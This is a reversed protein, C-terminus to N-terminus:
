EKSTFMNIITNKDLMSPSLDVYNSDPVQRVVRAGAMNLVTELDIANLCSRVYFDMTQTMLTGVGATISNGISTNSFYVRNEGDVSTILGFVNQRKSINMNASAVINSVDVMYNQRFNKPVENAVIFKCNVEDKADYQNFYNVLVLKTSSIGKRLYFLETAGLPEPADTIDGSFLIDRSESRYLRDWGYKGSVDILSLDLDVRNRDTNFWHVGTILNDPVSVYSNSPFNGTFQKETSPLAYHVGVPIYFVSGKVNEKIDLAISQLTKYLAKEVKGTTDLDTSWVFEDVWGKGNRVKYVVSNGANLRNSLASALRTKRFISANTLADNLYKIKLSGSKIKGTISNMKDEELPVHQFNANKRLRNFFTKNSSISRMALFLPKYRFFISALNEPAKSIVSDLVKKDAEKIKQILYANKILLTEGTLKYVLYRLFEVPEKPAIGYFDFLLNKLERNKVKYVFDKDYNFYKVIEMVDSITEKSLAIGSSGLSTIGKLIDDKNMAKVVVLQINDKIDPLELAESPIYVTDKDYIGLYEFGYTTIYHIIQEVVLTAISAESIKKWSKHFTANAKQGSLGIVKEIVNLNEVTPNISPHLIYGNRITRDLVAKNGSYNKNKDETYVGNFLRLIAIEM